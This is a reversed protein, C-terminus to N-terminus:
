NTAIAQTPIIGKDKLFFNVTSDYLDCSAM